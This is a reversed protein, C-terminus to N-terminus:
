IAMPAKITPHCQYGVLEYDELQSDEIDKLRNLDKNISLTPFPYPKRGLQELVADKHNNYIHVDGGTWVFEGPKLGTMKALMCTLLSYSSINFPVGLFLDCSRQYLQCSIEGNAVYFQSLLHCPPLAMQDIQCPNWASLTMRRSDPERKILDVIYQLQDVGKNFMNPAKSIVDVIEEGEELREGERYDRYVPGNFGEMPPCSVMRMAEYDANFYRWQYGYGPGIEGEPYQLGRSALFEKTTNDRWIYVGKEELDKSDTGGRIFWLLEEVVGKWFVRKTTLVPFHDRLTFRMQGGFVSKTGVGTRDKKDVGDAMVDALMKLYQIEEHQDM